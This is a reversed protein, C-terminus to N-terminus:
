DPYGAVLLTLTDFKSIKLKEEFGDSGNIYTFLSHCVDAGHKENHYPVSNYEKRIQSIFLNFKDQNIISLLDLSDFM